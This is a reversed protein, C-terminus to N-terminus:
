AMTVLTGLTDNTNLYLIGISLFSHLLPRVKGSLTYFDTHCLATNM